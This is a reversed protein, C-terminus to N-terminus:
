LEAGLSCENSQLIAFLMKLRIDKVSMIFDPLLYLFVLPMSVIVVFTVDPTM